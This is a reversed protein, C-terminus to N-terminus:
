RPRVEIAAETEAPYNYSNATVAGSRALWCRWPGDEFDYPNPPEAAQDPYWSLRRERLRTTKGSARKPLADIIIM